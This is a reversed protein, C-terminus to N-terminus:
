RRGRTATIGVPSSITGASWVGRGPSTGLGIVGMAIRNSASARGQAGLASSTILTPAAVAGAMAAGKIFQRRSLPQDLSLQKM